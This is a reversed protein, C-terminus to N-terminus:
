RHVRHDQKRVFTDVIRVARRAFIETGDEHRVIDDERKRLRKRFEKGADRDM